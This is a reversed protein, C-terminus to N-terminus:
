NAPPDIMDLGFGYEQNLVTRLVNAGCLGTIDGLDNRGGTYVAFFTDTSQEYTTAPGNWLEKNAKVGHDSLVLIIAGPDNQVIGQMAEVIRASIYEYQELYYRADSWNMSDAEDVPDGDVDYLFPAHPCCIYSFTLANEVTYSESLTYYTLIENYLDYDSPIIGLADVLPTFLTKGLIVDLTTYGDETRSYEKSTGYPIRPEFGVIGNVETEYFSYGMDEMLSFFRANRFQERCALYGDTDYDFVYDLDFLGSLSEMTFQKYNTCDDSVAFGLARMDDYFGTNDYGFVEQMCQTGALEDFIFVYVNPLSADGATYKEPVEIEELAAAKATAEESLRKSEALQPISVAVNFFVLVAMVGAVIFEIKETASGAPM